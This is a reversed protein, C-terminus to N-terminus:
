LVPLLLLFAQVYSVQFLWHVIEDDYNVWIYKKIPYFEMVSSSSKQKFKIRFFYKKSLPNFCFEFLIGMGLSGWEWYLFGPGLLDFGM